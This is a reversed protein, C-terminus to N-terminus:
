DWVCLLELVVSVIILVVLFCGILKNKNNEREEEDSVIKGVKNGKRDYINQAM